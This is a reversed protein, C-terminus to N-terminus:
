QRQSICYYSVYFFFLVAAFAVRSIKLIVIDRNLSKKQQKSGGSSGAMWGRTAPTSASLEKNASLATSCTAMHITIVFSLFCLTFLYWIDINKVYSTKPLSSSTQTYLSFFALLTTLSMTGRENLFEAPLHLTGYRPRPFVKLQCPQCENRDNNNQQLSKNLDSLSSFPFGPTHLSVFTNGVM